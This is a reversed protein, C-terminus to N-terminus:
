KSIMMVPWWSPEILNQSLLAPVKCIKYLNFVPLINSRGRVRDNSPASSSGNATCIIESHASDLLNHTAPALPWTISKLNRFASLTESNRTLIKSHRKSAISRSVLRCKWTTAHAPKPSELKSHSNRHPRLYDLIHIREAIVVLVVRDPSRDFPKSSLSGFDFLHFQVPKRAIEDVSRHCTLLEAQAAACAPRNGPATSKDSATSSHCDDRDFWM